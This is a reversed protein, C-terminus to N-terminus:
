PKSWKANLSYKYTTLTMLVSIKFWLTFLPVQAVRLPLQPLCPKTQKNKNQKRPKKKKWIFWVKLFPYCSQYSSPWTDPYSSLLTTCLPHYLSMRQHLHWVLSLFLLWCARTSHAVGTLPIPRFPCDILWVRWLATRLPCDGAQFRM